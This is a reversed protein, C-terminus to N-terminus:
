IQAEKKRVAEAIIAAAAELARAPDASSRIMDLLREEANARDAQTEGANGLALLAHYVDSPNGCSNLLRNFRIRNSIQCGCSEGPDLRAGCRPCNKDHQM